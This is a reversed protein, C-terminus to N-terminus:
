SRSKELWIAPYREQEWKVLPGGAHGNCVKCSEAPAEQDLYEKLAEPTIGALPIGDTGFPRGLIKEPIFPTTCCRFFYGRDVVHTYTRYWCSKYRAAQPGPGLEEKALLARFYPARREDKVELSVGYDAARRKVQELDYYKDPIGPYVSLVILDFLEWIAQPQKLLLIGNTWLELTPSIGSARAVAALDALGKHLLPEGGLFAYREARAVAALSSLDDELNAPHVAQPQRHMPVFHNCNVCRLQCALTINTELHPLSILGM